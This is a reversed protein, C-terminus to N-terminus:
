GKIDDYIKRLSPKGAASKKSTAYSQTQIFSPGKSQIFPVHVVPAMGGVVKGAEEETLEEPKKAPDESKAPENTAGTKDQESM